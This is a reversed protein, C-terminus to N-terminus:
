SRWKEWGKALEEIEWDEKTPLGLEKCEEVIGNIFVSMEQTNYTSSGAYVCYWTYKEHKSHVEYYKFYREVPVKNSIPILDSKGYRMLMVQYVYEKDRNIAEAIESILKWAYSNANLSRKEKHLKIEVDYEKKKDLGFLRQKIESVTGTFSIM